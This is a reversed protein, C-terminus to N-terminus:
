VVANEGQTLLAIVTNLVVHVATTVAPDQMSYAYELADALSDRDAFMPARYQALNELTM